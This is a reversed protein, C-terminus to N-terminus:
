QPIVFDCAWFMRTPLEPWDPGGSVYGGAIKYTRGTTAVVNGNSDRVVIESGVRRGTFGPRWVVPTTGGGNEDTIATGYTPDVILPGVASNTYCGGGMGPPVGTILQVPDGSAEASGCGVLSLALALATTARGM